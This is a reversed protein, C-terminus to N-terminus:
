KRQFLLEKKQSSSSAVIRIQVDLAIIVFIFSCFWPPKDSGAMKAATMLVQSWFVPCFESM